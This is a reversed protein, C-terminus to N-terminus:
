IITSHRKMVYAVGAKTLEYGKEGDVVKEALYKERGLLYYTNNTVLDSLEFDIRGRDLNGREGELWYIVSTPVYERYSRSKKNWFYDMIRQQDKRWLKKSADIEQQPIDPM